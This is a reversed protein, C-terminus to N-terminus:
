RISGPDKPVEVIKLSGSSVTSVFPSGPHSRTISKVRRLSLLIGMTTKMIRTFVSPFGPLRLPDGQDIKTWDNSRLTDLSVCSLRSVNM